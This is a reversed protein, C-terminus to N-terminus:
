RTWLDAGSISPSPDIWFSMGSGSIYSSSHVCISSTVIGSAVSSESRDSSSILSYGDQSEVLPESCSCGTLPSLATGSAM